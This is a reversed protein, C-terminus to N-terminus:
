KQVFFWVFGIESIPNEMKKIPQGIESIAQEMMKIAQGIESIPKGM